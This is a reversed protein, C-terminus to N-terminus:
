NQGSSASVLGNPAETGSKPCGKERWNGAQWVNSQCEKHRKHAAKIEAQLRVTIDSSDDMIKFHKWPKDKQQRLKASLDKSEKQIELASSGSQSLITSIPPPAKTLLADRGFRNQIKFSHRPLM